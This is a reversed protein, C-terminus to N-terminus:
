PWCKWGWGWAGQTLNVTVNVKAGPPPPPFTSGQLGQSKRSARSPWSRQRPRKKKESFHGGIESLGPHGVVNGCASKKESFHGWIEPLGSRSVHTWMEVGLDGPGHQFTNRPHNPVSKLVKKIDKLNKYGRQPDPPTQFHDPAMPSRGTKIHAGVLGYPGM